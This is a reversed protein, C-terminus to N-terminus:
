GNMRIRLCKNKQENKTCVRLAAEDEKTRDHSETLWEIKEAAKQLQHELRVITEQAEELRTEMVTCRRESAEARKEGSECRETLQENAAKEM